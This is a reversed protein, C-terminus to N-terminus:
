PSRIRKRKGEIYNIQHSNPRWRNRRQARVSNFGEVFERVKKRLKVKMADFADAVPEARNKLYHSQCYGYPIGSFIIPIAAVLGRQKDGLIGKIRLGREEIVEDAIPSFKQISDSDPLSDM